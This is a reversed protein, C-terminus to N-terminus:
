DLQEYVAEAADLLAARDVSGALVYALPRDIWYFAGVDQEEVFRFATEASELDARVYLALRRGTEDEYLFQAAPGATAPLLRGGMLRFGAGSLDPVRLPQGLRKSLWAVLHAEQSADVEVPHRVEAVYTRFAILADATLSGDPRGPGGTLGQNAFWGAVGGLMLWGVAAAVRMFQARRRAQRATLVSAVRLRHPVPEDLKAALRAALAERQARYAEVRAALEPREALCREVAQRRSPSLRDDVYAQLDDDGIPAEPPKM